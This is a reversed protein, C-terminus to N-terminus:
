KESKRLNWASTGFFYFPRSESRSPAIAAAPSATLLSNDMPSYLMAVRPNALTWRHQSRPRSNLMRTLPSGRIAGFTSTM